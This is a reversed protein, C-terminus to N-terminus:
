EQTSVPQAGSRTAVITVGIVILVAAGLMRATVPQGLQVWALCAALVPQVYIYVTVLTASSRGLAWANCLYAVITPMVIIYSIFAWGRPTWSPLEALVSPAGLPAFLVVGWTFLWTVVTLAGLKRVTARSYVIYAAYSACNALVVLGGVDVHRVGTLWAVGAVSSGLGAALRLSPREHRVAVALVAAMVPITVGLLAATMPSTLRLGVLFLTQNLAIGLVSLGALGKQEPWTTPKLLNRARTFVQFFAAAGLMRVMALAFPSIGEGGAVRSGM